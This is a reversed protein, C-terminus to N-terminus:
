SSAVTFKPLALDLIEAPVESKQYFSIYRKDNKLEALARRSFTESYDEESNTQSYKTV